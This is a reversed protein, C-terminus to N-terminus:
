LDKMVFFHGSETLIKHAQHNGRTVVSPTLVNPVAGVIMPRDPDGDVFAVMVEVDPKLPFHMGYGPGAHPQLMRVPPSSVARETEPTMDFYFRVTYRGQEDINAIRKTTAGKAVQTVAHLLGCIRPKRTRRPPRYSTAPLIARFRNAYPVPERDGGHAGGTVPQVITHEVAVVVLPKDALRPHGEVTFTRGPELAAATSRGEYVGNGAAREENRVRALQKGEEPSRHMAGHEVVEGAAGAPVGNHTAKLDLRPHQDFYDVVYHRAPAVARTTALETIHVEATPQDFLIAPDGAVPAFTQNSDSLVVVDRAGDHEFRLTIGVHEALRSVFALDSERYQVVLDRPPYTGELRLAVDDPAHLGARALKEVLIDPVSKSLFVEQTEVLTLRHVRPVLRLRYELCADDLRLLDTMSAIMGHVRRVQAGHREFVLTADAGLVVDPDLGGADLATVELDFDLPVGLEERGRMAAIQLHGCAFRSSELRVTTHPSVVRVGTAVPM